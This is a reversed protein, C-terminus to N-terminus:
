EWDYDWDDMLAGRMLRFDTENISLVQITVRGVPTRGVLESGNWLFHERWNDSRPHFLRVIEGTTHDIGAVNPGKHRNCHVCALALNEDVSSGGHQVAVIHDM